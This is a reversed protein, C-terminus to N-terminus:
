CLVYALPTMMTSIYTHTHTSCCCHMKRCIHTRLDMYVTRTLANRAPFSVYTETSTFTDEEEEM